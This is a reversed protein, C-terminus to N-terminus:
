LPKWTDAGVVGRHDPFGNSCDSKTWPNWPNVCITFLIGSCLSNM